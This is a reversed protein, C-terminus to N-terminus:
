MKLSIFRSEASLEIVSTIYFHIGFGIIERYVESALHCIEATKIASEDCFAKAAISKGACHVHENQLEVKM